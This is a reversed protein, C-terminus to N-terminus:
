KIKKIELKFLDIFISQYRKSGDPNEQEMSCYKSSKIIKGSSVLGNMTIDDYFYEDFYERYKNVVTEISISKFTFIVYFPISVETENAGITQYTWEDSFNLYCVVNSRYVEPNPYGVVFTDVLTTIGKETLFANFNNEFYQKTDNEITYISM